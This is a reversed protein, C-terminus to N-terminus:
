RWNFDKLNIVISDDCVNSIFNMKDSINQKKYAPTLIEIGIIQNDKLIMADTTTTYKGLKRKLETENKWTKRINNPLSLFTKLLLYDHELQSVDHKYIYLGEERFKKLSIDSLCYITTMKGFLMHRNIILENHRVLTNLYNNTIELYKAALHETIYGCHILSLKLSPKM